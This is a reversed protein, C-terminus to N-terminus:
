FTNIYAHRASERSQQMYLRHEMSFKEMEANIEKEAQRIEEKTLRSPDSESRLQDLLDDISSM